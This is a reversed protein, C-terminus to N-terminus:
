PNRFEALHQRFTEIEYVVINGDHRGLALYRGCPSYQANGTRKGDVDIDALATEGVGLRSDHLWWAGGPGVSGKAIQIPAGSSIDVLKRGQSEHGYAVFRRQPDMELDGSSSDASWRLTAAPLTYARVTHRIQGGEKRVSNIVVAFGDPAAVIIKPHENPMPLFTTHKRPDPGLLNRVPYVRPHINPDAHSYPVVETKTECRVSWLQEGTPDFALADQLGPPLTWSQVQQGTVVDWLKAQTGAASALQTGTPDFALTANDSFEGRPSDLVHLLRTKDLDWVAIQWQQSLAALYRGNSSFTAKIVPGVLGGFTATGRGPELEWVEVSNKPSPGNCVALRRGDADFALGSTLDPVLIDFLLRGTAADWLKIPSRGCSALTMGDPSFALTTVAAMSGDCHCRPRLTNLDWVTVRTGGDGTALQWNSRTNDDTSVPDRGFALGTIAIRGAQWTLPKSDAHVEQVSVLGAYDGIALLVGDPTFALSVAKRDWEDIQQGTQTDWVVVAGHGDPRVTAAAARSGDPALALVPCNFDNVPEAEAGPALSFERIQQSTLECLVVTWRDKPALQLAKGDPRFAVPGAGKLPSVLTDTGTTVDILRAHSQPHGLRDNLGGVLLREGRKDFAISSAGSPLALLQRADWGVLLAATENKLENDIRLAQIRQATAWGRDRWGVTHSALRGRQLKQMETERLAIEAQRREHRIELGFLAVLLAITFAFAAAWGPNRRAWMALRRAGWVPRATVPEHRLWRRLDDAFMQATAYREAPNKHLAKRCVAVLNTPVNRVLSQLPAPEDALVHDKVDLDSAGDFARRLTLVEYLTAGLGWVDTRADAPEGRWQEPAMYQPTGVIGGTTLDDGDQSDEKETRHGVQGIYGALGFDIVWCQGHGDILINSPKTDRHVIGVGHVHHIADAADAIVRAVSRYYNPSLRRRKQTPVEGPPVQTKIEDSKTSKVLELLDPTRSGPTKGDHDAAARIIRSLPQGDVFPMAFYLLDGDVGAAHIPVIHTQHLKALFRRERDFRGRAIASHFGRRITKVAVRRNIPEQVAEWIDGMGGGGIRRVIRFDGLQKPMTENDSHGAQGILSNMKAMARLDSALAPYRACYDAIVPARDSAAELDRLFDVFIQNERDPQSYDATM